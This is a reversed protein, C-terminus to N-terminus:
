NALPTGVGGSCVAGPEPTQPGQEYRSIFTPLRPDSADNLPLQLGWATAVVPSPLDPYPSLLVHTHGRVLGRLTEVAAASLDPRYTIWVAGHELSHVANENRVPQAYIGCNQWGASHTGGAPPVQEYKQPAESHTRPLNNYTVLGDLGSTNVARPSLLFVILLVIAIAGGGLILIWGRDSSSLRSRPRQAVARSSAKTM